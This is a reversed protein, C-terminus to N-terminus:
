RPAPSVKKLEGDVSRAYFLLVWKNGASVSSYHSTTDSPNPRVARSFTTRSSGCTTIKSGVLFSSFSYVDDRHNQAQLFRLNRITEPAHDAPAPFGARPVRWLGGVRAPDHVVASDCKSPKNAAAEKGQFFRGPLRFRCLHFLQDNLLIQRICEIGNRQVKRKVPESQLNMQVFQGTQM